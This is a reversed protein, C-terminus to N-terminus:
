EGSLNDYALENFFLQDKDKQELTLKRNDGIGM